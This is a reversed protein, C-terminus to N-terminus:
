EDLKVDSYGASIGIAGRLGPLGQLGPLGPLGPLGRLVSGKGHKRLFRDDTVIEGIYHGSWVENGDRKGVFRGQRSFVNDRSIFAIPEGRSSFLWQAM